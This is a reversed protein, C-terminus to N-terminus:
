PTANTAPATDGVPAPASTGSKPITLKQGVRISDTKLNNAARIAKVTTHFNTAIKSLTDGSRVAYVVEGNAPAVTTTTTTAATPPPIKIKKGIQLKTPEIGPNAATLAPVSVHFKSAIKSFSDGAVITYETTALPPPQTPNVDVIPPPNSPVAAVAGTDIM